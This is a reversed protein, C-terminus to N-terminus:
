PGAYCLCNFGCNGSGLDHNIQHESMAHTLAQVPLHLLVLLLCPLLTFFFAQEFQIFHHVIEAQLAPLLAAVYVKM